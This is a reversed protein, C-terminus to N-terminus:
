GGSDDSGCSSGSRPLSGYLLFDNVKNRVCKSSSYGTHGEGRNDLVVASDGLVAATETTWQYPTAPDGRTGVLLFKPTNVDKIERIYDTGKPHGYCSLVQLLREPGFIPSAEYFKRELESIKDEDQLDKATPRDPDDACNVAVLAAGANDMPVETPEAERGSPVAPPVAPPLPPLLSQDTPDTPPMLTGSIRMLSRPDGDAILSTLAQSLYPWLARSYLAQGLSAVLDSGAFTQGDDTTVPSEYLQNIVRRINQKADRSNAGLACGENSSCWTVFNDLATQQGEAGVLSQETLPETLTDVGDLVMRGVRKPFQATYVAGLRTGYSFGLYNLKKDGLVSRLVDMDRSVNVTGMHHQVPPSHKECVKYTKQLFTLLEDIDFGGQADPVLQPLDSGDGCTVPSSHGVGRPDFGVVDYGNTLDGFDKASAALGAVTSQGPGGFNLLVSGRPKGTSAKVRNVALKVTGNGPDAYDIPVEVKTCQMGEPADPLDACKGWTVKQQYFRNLDPGSDAALAPSGAGLLALAAAGTIVCRTRM